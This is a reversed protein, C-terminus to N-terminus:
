ELLSQEERPPVADPDQALPNPTQQRQLYVPFPNNNTEANEDRKTHQQPHCNTLHSLVPTLLAAM